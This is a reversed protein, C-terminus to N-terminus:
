IEYFSVCQARLVTVYRKAESGCINNILTRSKEEEGETRFTITVDIGRKM